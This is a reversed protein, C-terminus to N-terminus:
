EELFKAIATDLGPLRYTAKFGCSAIGSVSIESATKSSILELIPQFMDIPLGMSKVMEFVETLSMNSMPNMNGLSDVMQQKMEDTCQLEM